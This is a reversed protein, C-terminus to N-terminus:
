SRNTDIFSSTWHKLGKSSSPEWLCKICLFLDVMPGNTEMLLAKNCYGKNRPPLCKVRSTVPKFHLYICWVQCDQSCSRKPITFVPGKLHDHSRWSHSLFLDRSSDGPPQQTGWFLPLWPSNSAFIKCLYHMLVTHIHYTFGGMISEWPDM